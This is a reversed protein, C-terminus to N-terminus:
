KRKEELILQSIIPKYGSIYKMPEMAISLVFITISIDSKFFPGWVKKKIAEDSKTNKYSDPETQVWFFYYNFLSSAM